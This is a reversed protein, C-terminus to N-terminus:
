DDRHNYLHLALAAAGLIGSGVLLGKVTPSMEGQPVPVRMLKVSSENRREACQALTGMRRTSM